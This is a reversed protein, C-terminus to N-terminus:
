RNARSRIIQRVQEMTRGGAANAKNSNEPLSVLQFEIQNSNLRDLLDPYIQAVECHFCRKGPQEVHNEYTPPFSWQWVGDIRKASVYGSETSYVLYENESVFM